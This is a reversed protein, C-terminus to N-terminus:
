RTGRVPAGHSESGSGLLERQAAAGCAEECPGVCRALEACLEWAKWVSDRDGCLEKRSGLIGGDGRLTGDAEGARGASM